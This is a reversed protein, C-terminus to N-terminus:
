DMVSPAPQIKLLQLPFLKLDMACDLNLSSRFTSLTLLKGLTKKSTRKLTESAPDLILAKLTVQVTDEMDKLAPMPSQSIPFFNSNSGPYAMM